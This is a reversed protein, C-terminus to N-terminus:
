IREAHGGLAVPPAALRSKDVKRHVIEVLL